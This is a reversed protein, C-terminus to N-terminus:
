RKMPLTPSLSPSAKFAGFIRLFVFNSISAPTSGSCSAYTTELFITRLLCLVGYMVGVGTENSVTQVAYINIRDSYEKYPSWKLLGQAKATADKLFQEQQERTYGEGMIVIVFNEKDDGTKHIAYVSAATTQDAATQDAMVPYPFVLSLLLILSLVIAGFRKGDKKKVNTM